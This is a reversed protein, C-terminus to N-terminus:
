LSLQKYLLFLPLFLSLSLFFPLSVSLSLSHSLPSTPLSFPHLCMLCHHSPLAFSCVHCVSCSLLYVDFVHTHSHTNTRTLTHTHTHALTHTHINRTPLTFTHTHTCKKHTFDIHKTDYLIEQNKTFFISYEVWFSLFCM